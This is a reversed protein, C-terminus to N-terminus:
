RKYCSTNMGSQNRQRMLSLLQMVCEDREFLCSKESLHTMVTRLKKAIRQECSVVCRDSCIVIACSLLEPSYKM